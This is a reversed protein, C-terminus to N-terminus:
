QSKPNIAYRLGGVFTYDSADPQYEISAISDKVGMNYLGSSYLELSSDETSISWGVDSSDYFINNEGQGFAFLPVFALISLLMKM